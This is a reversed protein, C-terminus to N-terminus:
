EVEPPQVQSRPSSPHVNSAPPSREWTVANRGEAKAAYLREDALQVLADPSTADSETSTAIGISTTLAIRQNNWSLEAQEVLERIRQGLAAAQEPETERCLLAFEDGGLRAFIDEARIAGLVVQAFGELAKDGAPHGWTDNVRKFRDLDLLLLACPKEHRMAWPWESALRESFFRRNYAHTLGDRTAREYLLSHM